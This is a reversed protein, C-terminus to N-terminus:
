RKVLLGREDYSKDLNSLRDRLNLFPEKVPQGDAGIIKIVGVQDLVFLRNSDDPVPVFM